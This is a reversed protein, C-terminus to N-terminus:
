HQRANPSPRNITQPNPKASLSSPATPLNRHAEAQKLLSCGLLGGRPPSWPGGLLTQVHLPPALLLWMGTGETSKPYFDQAHGWLRPKGMESIPWGEWSNMFCCLRGCKLAVSHQALTFSTAAATQACGVIRGVFCGPRVVPWRTILAKM